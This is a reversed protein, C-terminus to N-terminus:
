GTPNSAGTGADAPLSAVWASVLADPLGAEAAATRASTVARATGTLCALAALAAVRAGPVGAAQAMASARGAEVDADPLQAVAAAIAFLGRLWADLVGADLQRCRRVLDGLEVASSGTRGAH